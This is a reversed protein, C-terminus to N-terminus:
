VQYYEFAKYSALNYEDLANFIMTYPVLTLANKDHINSMISNTIQPQDANQKFITVFMRTVLVVQLLLLLIYVTKRVPMTKLTIKSLEFSIILAMFPFLYILFREAIQSGAINLALILTLTYGALRKHYRMLDKFNFLIALIFFTSIVWVRDSWFFREHEESLKRIVNMLFDWVGESLYNTANNDPWNKIQYLWTAFHGKQWLDFSYLMSTIGASISFVFVSRWKRTFALVVFGAVSFILGNLHTLFALGALIGALVLYKYAHATNIAKEMLSYSLFGFFMVWIEPRFTFAYLIILPNFIILFLAITLQHKNEGFYNANRKFYAVFSAVFGLFFLLTTFRLPNVTWGFLKILGAGVFINLKHYSFLRVDCGLFDILTVTKVVGDKALWYSQEGFFADDIYIFRNWMSAMFALAGLVMIGTLTKKNFLVAYGREALQGPTSKM